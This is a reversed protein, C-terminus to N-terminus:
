MGVFESHAGQIKFTEDQLNAEEFDSPLDVLKLAAATDYGHKKAIKKLVVDEEGDDLLSDDSNSELYYPFTIDYKKTLTYKLTSAANLGVETEEDNGALLLKDAM